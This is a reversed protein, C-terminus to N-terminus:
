RDCRRKSAVFVIAGEGVIGEDPVALEHVRVEFGIEALRALMERGFIRWVLIGEMKGVTRWGLLRDMLRVPNDHYLKEAHYHIRGNILTARVDDADSGPAYPVTFVHSGGPRLVRFIECHGRYPEPFHEFVESSLVLDFSADPFSLSQLDEHRVGRVVQGPKCEAGFYESCAYDCRKALARHLPGKSELNYISFGPQFSFNGLSPLGHQERVVHAIQRQRNISRCHLCKGSERLNEKFGLFRTSKGCVPCTGHLAKPLVPVAMSRARAHM